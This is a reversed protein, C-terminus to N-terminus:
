KVLGEVQDLGPILHLMKRWMSNQVDSDAGLRFIIIQTSELIMVERFDNRILTTIAYHNTPHSPPKYQNEVANHIVFRLNPLMFAVTLM